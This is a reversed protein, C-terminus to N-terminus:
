AQTTESRSKDISSSSHKQLARSISGLTRQFPHLLQGLLDAPIDVASVQQATADPSVYLGYAYPLRDPCYYTGGLLDLFPFILCFNKDVAEAERAHHWRHYRPSVLVYCLPKPWAFNMNSHEWIALSGAIAGAVAVAPGGFGFVFHLVESTIAITLGNIPHVRAYTLWSVEPTMHHLSHFEWLPRHAIFRHEIYVAVDTVLLALFAQGVFPLIEAVAALLHYPAYAQLVPTVLVSLLLLILPASVLANVLPYGLETVFDRKFFAQRRHAPRLREAFFYLTGYMCLNGIQGGITRLGQLLWGVVAVSSLAQVADGM